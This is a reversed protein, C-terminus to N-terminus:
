KSNMHEGLKLLYTLGAENKLENLKRKHNVYNVGVDTALSMSANLLDLNSLDPKGVILKMANGVPSLIKHFWIKREKIIKENLDILIPRITTDVLNKCERNAENITQSNRIITRGEQSFKLMASWFLPLHGSLRDRAELIDQPEVARTAPLVMEISRMAILAAISSDTLKDIKLHGLNLDGVGILPVSGMKLRKDIEELGDLTVQMANLSVEYTNLGKDGKKLLKVNFVENDVFLDSEFIAPFLEHHKTYFNHALLLYKHATEKQPASLEALPDGEISIAIDNISTNIRYRKSLEIVLELQNPLYIKDFLLSMGTVMAPNAMFFGSMYTGEFRALQKSLDKRNM